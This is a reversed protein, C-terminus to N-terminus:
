VDIEGLREDIEEATGKIIRRPITKKLFNCYEEGKAIFFAEAQAKWVAFDTGDM